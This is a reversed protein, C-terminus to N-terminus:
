NHLLVATLIWLHTLVLHRHSLLLFRGGKGNTLLVRLVDVLRV